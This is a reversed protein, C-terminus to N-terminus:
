TGGTSFNSIVADILEVPINIGTSAALITSLATAVAGVIVTARLKKRSKLKGRSTTNEENM